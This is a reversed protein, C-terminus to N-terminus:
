SERRMKKLQDTVLSEQVIEFRVPVKYRDLSELCFARLRQRLAIKDEPRALAVRAVVRAGLLADPEGFCAADVVNDARQLVGEVEAPFVKEGGVNILDSARGLVRIWDGDDLV